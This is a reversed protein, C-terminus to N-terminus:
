FLCTSWQKHGHAHTHISGIIHLLKCRVDHTTQDRLGVGFPQFVGAVLSKLMQFYISTRPTVYHRQTHKTKDRRSVKHYAKLKEATRGNWGNHMDSTNRTGLSHTDGKLGQLAMIHAYENIMVGMKFICAGSYAEQQGTVARLDFLFPHSVHGVLIDLLFLAM